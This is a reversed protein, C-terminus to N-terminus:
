EGKGGPLAARAEKVGPLLKDWAAVYKDELVILEDFKAVFTEVAEAEAEAAEARERLEVIINKFPAQADLEDQHTPTLQSVQRIISNAAELKEESEALQNRLSKMLDHAGKEASFGEIERDTLEDSM